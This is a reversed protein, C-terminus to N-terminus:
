TGTARLSVRWSKNNNISIGVNNVCWLFIRRDSGTSKRYNFKMKPISIKYKTSAHPVIIIGISQNM